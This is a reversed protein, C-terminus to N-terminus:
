PMVIFRYLFFLDVFYLVVFLRPLILLGLVQELVM